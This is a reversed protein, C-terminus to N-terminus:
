LPQPPNGREGASRVGRHSIGYLLSLSGDIFLLRQSMIINEFVDLPPLDLKPTSVQMANLCSRDTCTCTIVDIEWKPGCQYM